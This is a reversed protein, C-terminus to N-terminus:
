NSGVTGQSLKVEMGNTLERFGKSVIQEDGGVGGIVETFGDFSLGTEIHLKTAILKGDKQAVSYVFNGKEDRQIIGTPVVAASESYYDRLSLVAVQNPKVMFDVSPLKIEVEFTRNQSNMVQSVATIKSDINKDIAPFHVKVDDGSKFDGIFRESVDAKIYMDDLKVIRLLPMGPSAMEGANVVIEDITGNFPARVRAQELQSNMTALSRELSEKRNKAELYQLESGINKKWLNSQREFVTTALTLQTKLEEISNLMVDGNLTVLLQGKSVNQGETVNVSLIKGMGEASMVVNKRSQVSGRMEVRHEFPMKAITNAEVLIINNLNQGYNPDVSLIEKELAVIEAKLANLESRKAELNAKRKDLAQEPSSTCSTLLAFGSLILLTYINKM